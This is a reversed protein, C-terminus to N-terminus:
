LHSSIFLGICLWPPVPCKSAGQLGVRSGLESWWKPPSGPGRHQAVCATGLSVQGQPPRGGAGGVIVWQGTGEATGLGLMAAGEAMMWDQDKVRPGLRGERSWSRLSFISRLVGMLASVPMAVPPSRHQDGWLPGYGPLCCMSIAIMDSSQALPKNPTLTPVVPDFDMDCDINEQPM